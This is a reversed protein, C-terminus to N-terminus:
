PATFVCRTIPLIVDLLGVFVYSEGSQLAPPQGSEPIRQAVGEPPQGYLFGDGFPLQKHTVDILWLTGEPEDYNPPAGPMKSGAELIYAYRVQASGWTLVGLEDVGVGVPCAEPEYNVQEGIFAGFPPVAAAWDQTQGRRELEAIWFAQMRPIDTTPVGTTFRDFGNNEEPPYAGLSSSDALGTFLAVGTDTVTDVWLPGGDTYWASPGDPPIQKSHCCVCGCADIQETVWALESMYEEDQLRPDDDSGPEPAPYPYYPRQTFVVDCNAYDAFKYGPETCGGIMNQTCVTGDPGAGAPDGDVPDKCETFGAVFVGPYGGVVGDLGDAGDTTDSGDTADNGDAGDAADTSDSQVDCLPDPTFAGGGFTECGTQALACDEPDSGASVILYSTETTDEVECRGLESEFQCGTDPRFDGAAGLFVDQCDEMATDITWKAGTYERCEEAEAFSNTYYCSALSTSTNGDAGDIDGSAVDGDASDTSDDGTTASSAEAPTETVDNCAMGGFSLGLSLYVLLRTKANMRAGM